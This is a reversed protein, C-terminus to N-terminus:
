LNDHYSNYYDEAEEYDWFDDYNDDYFDEPDNYDNVNYPDEKKTSNNKKTTIAPRTAWFKPMGDSTWYISKNYKIVDTVKGDKCEVVLVKDKGDYSYWYYKDFDYSAGSYGGKM